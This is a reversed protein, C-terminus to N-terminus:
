DKFSKLWEEMLRPWTEAAPNGPRLGYGHGGVSMLHLDVPIGKDRLAKAMVLSSNGHKDDATGFIFFPPTEDSITLEPTLTNDPGRDLYAPYILIAFDPKASTNDTEDVKPYAAEAYRTAARASLSGGASFGLVGVKNYGSARVLRIARQMDMLAQEEKKPVRYQLVYATIDLGNLAKAIEYGEKEIALINYGGGPAVIIAMDKEQEAPSPFRVMLPNIVTSIRTLDGTNEKPQADTIGSEGPIASPWLFITDINQSFGTIFASLSFIITFFLKKIM